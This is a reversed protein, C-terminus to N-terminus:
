EKKLKEVEKRQRELENNKNVGTSVLL